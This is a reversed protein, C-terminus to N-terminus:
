NFGTIYRVVAARDGSEAQKAAMLGIMALASGGPSATEPHKNLDSMMSTVAQVLDGTKVYEMARDKCWQLHEVRNM